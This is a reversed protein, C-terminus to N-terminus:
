AKEYKRFEYCLDFYTQEDSSETLRWGEEELNVMHTDAEYAYDVFTIHATDCYPLFERYVEQGGIIYIDRDCYLGKKKYDELIAFTEEMSHSVEAGKVKFDPDRTLVLNIRNELPREGPLALLTKRGMVVVKGQTEQRFMKQDAPIHVLQRGNKGIAWHKDVVAILQM